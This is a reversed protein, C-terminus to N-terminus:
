QAVRIIVTVISTITTRLNLVQESGLYPPLDKKLFRGKSDRAREKLLKPASLDEDYDKIRAM